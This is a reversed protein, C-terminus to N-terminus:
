SPSKVRRVAAPGHGYWRRVARRLARPDAYGTRAAISEVTLDTEMLLREVRQQRARDVEERWTTGEELLRRQLTRPGMGMRHAVRALEPVGGTLWLEVEGRFRDLWCLVPRASVVKNEAHDRLIAALAPDAQPLPQDADAASFTISPLEAGFEICRTGYAEVLYGHSRPAPFPLRVSLPTLPRGAASGAATLIMGVAFEAIIPFVPHDAFAGHFRVTLGAADRVPEFSESPDTVAGVHRDGDRFAETLTGATIFLYDWVGLSGPRWLEWPRAGGGVERLQASWEEWIRVLAAGPLRVQDDEIVALGPIRALRGVDLGASVGARLLLRTVHPPVTGKSGEHELQM